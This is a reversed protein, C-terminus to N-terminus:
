FRAPLITFLHFGVDGVDVGDAVNDSLGHEGVFCDV